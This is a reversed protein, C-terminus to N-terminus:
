CMFHTHTECEKVKQNEPVFHSIKSIKSLKYRSTELHRYCSQVNWIFDWWHYKWLLIHTWLTFHDIVSLQRCSEACKLLDTMTNNHEHATLSIQCCVVYFFFFLHTEASRRDSSKFEAAAASEEKKNTDSLLVNSREPSKFNTENSDVHLSHSTFSVCWCSIYVNIIYSDHRIYTIYIHPWWWEIIM